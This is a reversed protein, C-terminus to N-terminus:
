KKVDFFYFLLLNFSQWNTKQKNASDRLASEAFNIFMEDCYFIYKLFRVVCYSLNVEMKASNKIHKDKIVKHLVKRVKYNSFLM